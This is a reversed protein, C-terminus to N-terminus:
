VGSSACIGNDGHWASASANCAAEAPPLPLRAVVRTGGTPLAAVLCTGGLEAARERMSTLGIGVRRAAPLGVGDDAVEVHLADGMALRIVCTHAQAHRVVNSLAEQVIRYAAVEVAAPLPPLREPAEVVVRLGGDGDEGDPAGRWPRYPAACEFIAGVLGLEDLAPPRLNYM